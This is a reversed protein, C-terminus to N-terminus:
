YVFTRIYNVLHWRDTDDLISECAPLGRWGDEIIQFVEMDRAESLRARLLERQEPMTEWAGCHELYLVRGQELSESDPLVVNVVEPARNIQAQYSQSTEQLFVFGFALFLVTTATAGVAVAVNTPNLDLLKLWRALTPYSVWAIVALVAILALIHQIGPPQSQIVSAEASIDWRFAARSLEGDEGRVDILSWWEGPRDIAGDATVYTGGEISDATDTGGRLDLSPFIQQVDVTLGDVPVGEHTTVTVDYTNTGPGGPTITQTVVYDGVIQSARPAPVQNQAFEPVPTPTSALLGAACLVGFAFVTELRLTTMFRLRAAREPKLAFHHVAGLGLLGMVLAVKLLLSVGFNTGTVESPQSVWLLSSYIGTTIVLLASGFAFRSYRRLVALLAQRKPEGEYPQLAVPLVLVLAMLGGVWFGVGITHLWDVGIGIWPLMLSGAAHSVVSFSGTVLAMVWANATLFARVLQPQEQRYYLSAAFMIGVLALMAMRFNWVDGFRSGIRVVSWLNQSLVESIGVNFFVMSQQLLAIINSIIALLLATGIILNLRGMVRPPLLGARHTSSGWAPVLVGAYLTFIGFLLMTSSYLLARWFVELPVAEQRAGAGSVGAVEEGVFFTRTEAYVHGDSAFAPRLEVIYAGDPLQPPLQVRMLTTNNEDVGGTAIIEGNQNRVNVSSFEVELGESFWYQLRTPARDLVARDEPVQRVIFGHASVPSAFFLILLLISIFRKM